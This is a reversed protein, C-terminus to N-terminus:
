AVTVFEPGEATLNLESVAAGYYGLSESYEGKATELAQNYADHLIAYIKLDDHIESVEEALIISNYDSIELFVNLANAFAVETKNLEREELDIVVWNM